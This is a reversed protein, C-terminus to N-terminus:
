ISWQQRHVRGNVTYPELFVTIARYGPTPRSSSTYSRRGPMAEKQRAGTETPLGPLHTLYM